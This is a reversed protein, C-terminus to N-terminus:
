WIAYYGNNYNSLVYSPIYTPQAIMKGLERVTYKNLDKLLGFQLASYKKSYVENIAQKDEQLLTDYYKLGVQFTPVAMVPIQLNRLSIDTYYRVLVRSWGFNKPFILRNGEETINYINNFPNCRSTAGWAGSQVSYVDAVSNCAFLWNKSGNCSEMANGGVTTDNESSSTFCGCTNVKNFNEECDVVCGQTDVELSCLEINETTVETSTWVGDTYIRIPYQKQEYYFGNSDVSKRTVCTFTQTSSDPLEAEIEESVSEYGKILNCLQNKCGCECNKSAGIDVIDDHLRDNRWVPYIVGNPAIISVDSLRLFEKPLTITNTLKNIGILVRVAIKLTQMDLDLFVQKALAHYRMKNRQLLDGEYLNASKIVDDIPVFKAM